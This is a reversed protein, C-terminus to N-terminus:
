QSCYVWGGQVRGCRPLWKQSYCSKMNQPNQCQIRPGEPFLTTVNRCCPLLACPLIKCSSFITKNKFLVLKLHVKLGVNEYTGFPRDLMGASFHTNLHYLCPEKHHCQTFSATSWGEDHTRSKKKTLHSQTPKTYIRKAHKLLQPHSTEENQGVEALQWSQSVTTQRQIQMRHSDGPLQM